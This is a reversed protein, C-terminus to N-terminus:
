PLPNSTDPNAFSLGFRRRDGCWAIFFRLAPSDVFRRIRYLRASQNQWSSLAHRFGETPLFEGAL